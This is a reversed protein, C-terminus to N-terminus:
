FLKLHDKEGAHHRVNGRYKALIIIVNYLTYYNENMIWLQVICIIAFFRLFIENFFLLRKQVKM